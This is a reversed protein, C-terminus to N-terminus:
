KQVVIKNLNRTSHWVKNVFADQINGLNLYKPWYSRLEFNSEEKAKCHM